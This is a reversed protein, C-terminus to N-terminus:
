LTNKHFAHIQSKTVEVIAKIFQASIKIDKQMINGLFYYYGRMERRTCIRERGALSDPKLNGSVTLHGDRAFQPSLPPNRNVLGPGKM